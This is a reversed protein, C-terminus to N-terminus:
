QTNGANFCRASDQLGSPTSGMPALVMRILGSRLLKSAGVHYVGPQEAARQAPYVASVTRSTLFNSLYASNKLYLGSTPKLDFVESYVYPRRRGDRNLTTDEAEISNLV